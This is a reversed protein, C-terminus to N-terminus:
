PTLCFLNENRLSLSPYVPPTHSVSLNDPTTLYRKAVSLIQQSGGRLHITAHLRPDCGEFFVSVRKYKQELEQKARRKARLDPHTKEELLEMQRAFEEPEDTFERARFLKCTGLRVLSKDFYPQRVIKAFTCHALRRLTSAKVKPVM